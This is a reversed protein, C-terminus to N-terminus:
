APAPLRREVQPVLEAAVKRALADPDEILGNIPVVIRVLAWPANRMVQGTGGVLALTSSAALAFSGLAFLLFYLWTIPRSLHYRLEYRFVTGFM